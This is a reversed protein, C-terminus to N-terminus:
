SSSDTIPSLILTQAKNLDKTPHFAKQQKYNVWLHSRFDYTVNLKIIITCFDYLCVPRYTYVKIIKMCKQNIVTQRYFM